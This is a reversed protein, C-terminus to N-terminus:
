GPCRFSEDRAPAGPDCLRGAPHLEQDCYGDAHDFWDYVADVLGSRDVAARRFCRRHVPALGGPDHDTAHLGQVALGARLLYM